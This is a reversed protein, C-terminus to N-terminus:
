SYDETLMKRIRSLIALNSMISTALFTPTKMPM